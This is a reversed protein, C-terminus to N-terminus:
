HPQAFFLPGAEGRDKIRSREEMKDAILRLLELRKDPGFHEVHAKVVAKEIPTWLDILLGTDAFLAEQVKQVDNQDARMIGGQRRIKGSRAYLLRLDIQKRGESWYLVPM